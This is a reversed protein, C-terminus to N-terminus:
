VSRFCIRFKAISLPFRRSDKRFIGSLGFIFFVQCEFTVLSNRDLKIGVSMKCSANKKQSFFKKIDEEVLLSDMQSYHALLLSELIERGFSDM